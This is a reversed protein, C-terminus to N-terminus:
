LIEFRAGVRRYTDIARRDLSILTARHEVATWAVMADFVAGGAIGREPLSALLRACADPSLYRTNPFNEALLEAALKSGIRRPKPMRTLASYAEFAAHGAMGARNGALRAGVMAQHPHDM